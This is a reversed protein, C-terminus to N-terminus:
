QGSSFGALGKSITEWRATQVKTKQKIMRARVFVSLDVSESKFRGLITAPSKRPDIRIEIFQIM